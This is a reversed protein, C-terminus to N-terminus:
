TAEEKDEIERIPDAWYVEAGFGLQHAPTGELPQSCLMVIQHRIGHPHHHQFESSELVTYRGDGLSRKRVWGTATDRTAEEAQTM